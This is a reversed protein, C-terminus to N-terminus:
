FVILDPADWDPCFCDLFFNSNYYNSKTIVENVEKVDEYWKAINTGMPELSVIPNEETQFLEIYKNHINSNIFSEVNRQKDLDVLYSIPVTLILVSVCFVIIAGIFHVPNHLNRKFRARQDELYGALSMLGIGCALVLILILIFM